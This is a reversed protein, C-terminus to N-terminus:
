PIRINVPMGERLQLLGSTIVTDNVQLGSVVQVERETRIDTQIM